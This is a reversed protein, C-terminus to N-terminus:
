ANPEQNTLQRNLIDYQTTVEPNPSNDEDAIMASNRAMRSSMTSELQVPKFRSLRQKFEHDNSVQTM